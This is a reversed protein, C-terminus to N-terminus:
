RHTRDNRRRGRLKAALRLAREFEDPGACRSQFSRSWAPIEEETSLGRESLLQWALMVLAPLVDECRSIGVKDFARMIDRFLDTDGLGEMTTIEMGQLRYMPLICAPVPRGGLLVTCRMCRRHECQGERSGEPSIYSWAPATAPCDFTRATGNITCHIKM